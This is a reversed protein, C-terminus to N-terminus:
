FVYKMQAAFSRQEGINCPLVTYEENFANKASVSVQLAKSMQSSLIFDFLSFGGPHSRDWDASGSVGIYLFQDVALLASKHRYQCTLNWRGYGATASLRHLWKSRYKLVAPNDTRHFAASEPSNLAQVMGVANYNTPNGQPGVQNFLDVQLSDVGPNLNVPNMYTTGGNLDFRFKDHTWQAMATLEIGTLRARSYNRASFVPISGFIFTDPPIVGFEIMNKYDMVFGAVDLYGLLTRQGKGVLFGQKYGVEASFGKEVLLEPNSTILLGGANTNLYREAISPSRFAQGFSARINSGKTFEYNGGVRFIPAANVLTDDILWKDYRAGFSTSLKSTVNVDIQTYAATNVSKHKGQYITDGRIANYSLTGGLVWKLRQDLLSTSYNYDNFFMTSYNSQQTDNTNTSRLMRGRYSHLSGKKTLYKVYPDITQRTLFQSRKSTTGSLAGLANFITDGGFTIMTDDPLYCDWFVFTSSSDFKAAGNIGWTMGPIAKPRFKTMIQVRGQTSATNQKWGTDHWFDVLGVLDHRGIKRSHFVNIGANKAFRNGDWDLRKDHPADYGQGRLRISTKPKEPADAMIVNIVGGLASSGYLVSSAGKMVEIQQVNDTPIMDFQAIGADPSLLPLGDLMLLVRSGVGYAYGSSGRISPQGDIIDVGSNQQLADKIDSSIQMDIKKSNIVDFSGTLKSLNQQGKSATFVVPDFLLNKAAVTVLNVDYLDQGAITKLAITTDAAFEVYRFLLKIEDQRPVSFSFSGDEGTNMGLQTGVVIVTVGLIPSNDVGDMVKGKVTVNQAVASTVVGLLLLLGVGINKWRPLKAM